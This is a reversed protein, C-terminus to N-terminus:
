PKALDAPRARHILWATKFYPTTFLYVKYRSDHHTIVNLMSVSTWSARYKAPMHSCRSSCAPRKTAALLARSSPIAAYRPDAASATQRSDRGHSDRYRAHSASGPPRRPRFM